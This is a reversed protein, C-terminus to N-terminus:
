DSAVTSATAPSAVEETCLPLSFSFESGQGVTSEIEISGGGMMAVLHRAIALGLGTGGYRAHTAKGIQVFSDFVRGRDEEPIGIGTDAVSFRVDAGERGVRLEVSGAATFKIGNGILNTLVQVLRVGDGLLIEPVDDAISASLRLGKREALPRLPALTTEITRHLGFPTRSIEMRGAEIKALDLIDNILVALQWAAGKSLELYERVKPSRAHLLALEAMGIIGNLPTRIEHSMKALFDSKAANAEAAERQAREADLRAEREADRATALATERERIRAAARSMETGITNFEWLDSTFYPIDGRGMAEASGVLRAAAENVRRGLHVALGVAVGVVTLSAIIVIWLAWRVPGYLITEPVGVLFTWSTGPVPHYVNLLPIGEISPNRVLGTRSANRRLADVVEPAAPRGIARESDHSRAIFVSNGDVLGWLWGEPWPLSELFKQLTRADLSLGLVYQVRDDKIVPVDIATRQAGAIKGLFLDSVSPIRTEVAQRMSPLASRVPLETGYPLLTNLLQNGETDSLFLNSGFVGEVKKLAMWFAELEDTAIRPSRALVTLAAEHQDIFSAVQQANFAALRVAEQQKGEVSNRYTIWGLGGGLTVLPLVAALILVTLHGRITRV